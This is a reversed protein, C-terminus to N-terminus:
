QILGLVYAWAPIGYLVLALGAALVIVGAFYERIM